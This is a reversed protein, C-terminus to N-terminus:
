SLRPSVARGWRDVQCMDRWGRPVRGARLVGVELLTALIPRTADALLARRRPLRNVARWTAWGPLGVTEYVGPHVMGAFLFRILRPAAYRVRAREVRGARAWWEPLMTRAFALHRAEEQRHYRNVARVLPDVGEHALARKQLLDPIEEGALLLVAFYADCRLLVHVQQRQFARGARSDFPNRASAGLEDLLRLFARQHRTEEGVEHLMYAYQPDGLDDAEALRYSFVADLIAEFNIGAGLMAALEERSLRTRGHDDLDVDAGDISLLDDPLVRGPSLTGFPLELEPEIIRRLSAGSLARVRRSDSITATV